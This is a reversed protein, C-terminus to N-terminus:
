FIGNEYDVDLESYDVKRQNGVSSLLGAHAQLMREALDKDVEGESNKNIKVKKADVRRSSMLNVLAYGTEGANYAAQFERQAQLRAIKAAERKTLPEAHGLGRDSDDIALASKDAGRAHNVPETDVLRTRPQCRRRRPPPLPPHLSPLVPPNILNLSYVHCAGWFRLASGKGCVRVRACACACACVRVRARTCVRVCARARARLCVRVSAREAFRKSSTGTEARFLSRPPSSLAGPICRLPPFAIM